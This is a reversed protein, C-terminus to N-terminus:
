RPKHALAWVTVPFAPDNYLPQGVYRAWHWFNGIVCAKNGWAAAEIHNLPFGCEALFYRIGTATWRTCDVPQEHVRILFPTTLLFHGGPRLMNYVNRAARYPWLLHEFVQDAIVFDFTTPLTDRCIDFDPYDVAQYSRFGFQQWITNSSPSIELADLTTPDLARIRRGLDRYMVVRSWHQDSASAAGGWHAFVPLLALGGVHRLLRRTRTLGGTM